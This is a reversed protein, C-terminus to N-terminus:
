GTAPAGAPTAEEGNRRLNAALMVLMAVSVLVLAVIVNNLSEDLGILFIWKDAAEGIAGASKQMGTATGLLGSTATLAMLWKVAPVLSRSRTILHRVAFLITAFGFLLVPYIGYGAEHIIHFM